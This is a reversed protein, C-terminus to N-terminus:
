GASRHQHMLRAVDDAEASERRQEAETWRALERERLKEMIKRQKAAELLVLQAGEVDRRAHDLQRSLAGSKQRMAAAFRQHAALSAATLRGSRLHDSSSRKVANLADMEAQVAMVKQQAVALERQRQRELQKRHELVGALKFTFKAM